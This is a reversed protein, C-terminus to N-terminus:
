KPTLRAYQFMSEGMSFFHVKEDNGVGTDIHPCNDYPFIGFAQFFQVSYDNINRIDKQSLNYTKGDPNKVSLSVINGGSLIEAVYPDYGGIFCDDDLLGKFKEKDGLHNEMLRKSAEMRSNQIDRINIPAKWNKIRDTLSM